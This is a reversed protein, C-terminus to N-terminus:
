KLGRRALEEARRLEAVWEPWWAPWREARQYRETLTQMADLVAQEAETRVQDDYVGCAPCDEIPAAPDARKALRLMKRILKTRPAQGARLKDEILDVEEPTLANPSPDFVPPQV